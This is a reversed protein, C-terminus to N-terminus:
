ALKLYDILCAASTHYCSDSTCSLTCPVTDAITIITKILMSGSAGIFSHWNSSDFSVIWLEWIDVYQYTYLALVGYIFM